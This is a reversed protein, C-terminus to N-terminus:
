FSHKWNRKSNYRKRMKEIVNMLARKSTEVIKKNEESDELDLSFATDAIWGDLHVGMDIKLIGKAIREDDYAPTAHAAIDNVSLCTPFAPKGGLEAIKDEIRNSIDILLMGKKIFNRAEERIKSAIKGAKLIKEKDM